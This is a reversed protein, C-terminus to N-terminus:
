GLASVAEALGAPGPGGLGRGGGLGQEGALGTTGPIALCVEGEPDKHGQGEM